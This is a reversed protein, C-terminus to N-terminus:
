LAAIAREYDPEDKLESVLETHKVKGNEDIVVIARAHLGALKGSTMEVGYSQGFNGRFDSLTIVNEIGEAGCFRKQAFPLDRSICLVKTNPLDAAMENFKRVSMACTSTDISPFINLVLKTGKFDAFSVASMDPGALSFDPADSGIEPLNGITKVPVGGLATESMQHSKPEFTHFIDSPMEIFFEEKRSSDKDFYPYFRSTSRASFVSCLAM